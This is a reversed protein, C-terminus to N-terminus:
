AWRMMTAMRRLNTAACVLFWEGAVKDLGRLSVTRFGLGQKIWGFPAEAIHKRPRYAERGRKSKMKQKMRMTAPRDPDSDADRTKRDLPIFAETTRRELDAFNEESKYGADALIRKPEVGVNDVAADLVPVLENVDAANNSIAAAVIIQHEADVATQANFCQEFSGNSKMIRSDPDTFNEQATDKPTGLPHKRKPGCRPKGDSEREKEAAIADADAQKTREELRQKAAQIASKREERRSLEEPLEDGRFDPGFELDELADADTAAKTITAIEQALRAEEEKMRGYSMAKRKSANAKLKTGDIALTGMKVLGAERAIQVVQVFLGDFAAIHDTRFRCLTRHSPAQGAALVRLAINEEVGKAIARSSRKGVCYSYILLKLMLRPHYPLTGAGSSRYAVEIESIDLADVTDSIFYALHDEPLWDCPSPPFLHSQDPEYPQYLGSM